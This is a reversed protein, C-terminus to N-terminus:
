SHSRDSTAELASHGPFALLRGGTHEHRSVIWTRGFIIAQAFGWRALGHAPAGNAEQDKKSAEPDSRGRITHGDDIEFLLAGAVEIERLLFFVGTM